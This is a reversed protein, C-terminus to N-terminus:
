CVFLQFLGRLYNRVNRISIDGFTKITLKCTVHCILIALAPDVSAIRSVM